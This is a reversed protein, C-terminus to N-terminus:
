ETSKFYTKTNILKLLEDRGARTKMLSKFKDPIGTEKLSTFSIRWSRGSHCKYGIERVGPEDDDDVRYQYECLDTIMKDFDDYYIIGDFLLNGIEWGEPLSIEGKQLQKFEEPRLEVISEPEMTATEGFNIVMIKGDQVSPLAENNIELLARCSNGTKISYVKVIGPESLLKRKLRDDM